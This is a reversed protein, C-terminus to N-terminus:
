LEGDECWITPIVNFTDSIVIFACIRVYTRKLYSM